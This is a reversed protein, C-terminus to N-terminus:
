SNTPAANEEHTTAGLRLTHGEIQFNQSQLLEDWQRRFGIDSRSLLGAREESITLEHFVTYYPYAPSVFSDKRHLIPPNLSNSFDRMQYTAKPLYVRMGFRLSPHPDDDFNAYHLFSVKRGDVSLKIVNHGIDGVIQRGAFTMLRILPPLEEELSRHIYLDDFVRKGNKVKAFADKVVEPQGISFLFSEAESLASHYDRWLSKLDAQIASPLSRMPPVKLGQLRIMAMYTLLDERKQAKSGEFASPNIKALALREIRHPSGFRDILKRYTRFESPLPVRGLNNALQIFKKGATDKAFEEILETRYGLRRSFAQAALFESEAGYDSFVYVIGIGAVHVKRTLVAEVYEKFEAQAYIKQFTGKSTIIGDNFEATSDLGHEVRVSVVLLKRALSFAVRLTESRENPDEIVNLVFGLNVIDAAVIPSNPLHFPDWGTASIKRRRLYTVDGGHGCGFDFFTYRDKILEDSLALAVPRSCTYRKMATKGRQLANANSSYLGM